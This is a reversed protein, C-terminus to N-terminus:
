PQRRVSQDCLAKPVTRILGSCSRLCTHIAGNWASHESFPITKVVPKVTGSGTLKPLTFLLSRSHNQADSFRDLTQLIFFFCPSLWRRSLSVKAGKFFLGPVTSDSGNRNHVNTNTLKATWSCDDYSLCSSVNPQPLTTTVRGVNAASGIVFQNFTNPKTM